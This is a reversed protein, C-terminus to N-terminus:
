LWEAHIGARPPAGASVVGRYMGETGFPLAASGDRDVAILGGRGGARPVDELAVRRAAEELSLGAHRMLASIEHAAAAKLFAEGTGTCSVAVRGDAWTGAGIIPSDGVRGARKNTMGGTSTAAALRGAADRAVAGVTGMRAPLDHDLAVSRAARAAELQAWRHPTRFYGPAELALGEAAAFADAAEGALLVHPTNRMVAEAARIPNRIRTVGTVAGAAGEGLMLAADMEITGAATFTSGRGANFLPCDELSIVAAIVAEGATGGARLVAAGAELAALLGDRYPAADALEARPITGAGGHIALTWATM